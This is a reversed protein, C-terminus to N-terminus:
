EIIPDVQKKIWREEERAEDLGEIMMKKKEATTLGGQLALVKLIGEKFEKSPM